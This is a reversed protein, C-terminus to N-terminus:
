KGIWDETIESSYVVEGTEECVWRNDPGSYTDDQTWIRGYQDTADLTGGYWESVDVTLVIKEM